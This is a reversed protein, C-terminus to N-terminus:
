RLAWASCRRRKVIFRSLHNVRPLRSPDAALGPHLPTGSGAPPVTSGSLSGMSPIERVRIARAARSGATIPIVAALGARPSSGAAVSLLGTAAERRSADLEAGADNPPMWPGLIRLALGTGAPGLEGWGDARPAPHLRRLIAAEDVGDSGDEQHDLGPVVDGVAGAPEIVGCRTAPEPPVGGRGVAPVAARRGAPSADSRRVCAPPGSRMDAGSGIDAAVWGGAGGTSGGATLAPSSPPWDIM